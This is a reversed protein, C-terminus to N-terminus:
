QSYRRRYHRTRRNFIRKNQIREEPFLPEIKQIANRGGKLRLASLRKPIKHYYVTHQRIRNSCLNLHTMHTPLPYIQIPGTIKNNSLNLNRLNSPLGYMDVTGRIYNAMLGIVEVDAPLRRTNLHFKQKCSVVRFFRLTRPLYEINLNPLARYSFSLERIVKNECKVGEWGQCFPSNPQQHSIECLFELTQNALVTEMLAQQFELIYENVSSNNQFTDVFIFLLIVTHM